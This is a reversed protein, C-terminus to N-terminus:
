ARKQLAHPVGCVAVIVHWCHPALRFGLCFYQIWHPASTLAARAVVSSPPWFAIGGAGARSRELRKGTRIPKTARKIM